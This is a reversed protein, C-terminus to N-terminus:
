LKLRLQPLLTLFELPFHLLPLLMLEMRGWPLQDVMLVTLVTHVVMLVLIRATLVLLRATLVLLRATLVLRRLAQQVMLAAMLAAVQLLVRLARLVRLVRLVQLVELVLLHLRYALDAVEKLARDKIAAWNFDM